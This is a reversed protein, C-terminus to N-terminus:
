TGDIMADLRSMQIRMADGTLDPRGGARGVSSAAAAVAQRAAQRPHEGCDLAVTLAASFADGAGTSDVVQTDILPLFVEDDEWVFANGAGAVDIAVLSLGHRLLERGARLADGASDVREGLALEAEKADLRFVDAASLLAGKREDDAPAGDLVVRAGEERALRAATLAAASPQQLQVLVSGATRLLSAATEVDAETLMTEAPLDELYRWRGDPELVDVILGTTARRVVGSVDIGDYRAQGLIHDAVRDDGVVGIVAVGAGLQACAVAQNAGKGGLMELRRRVAVSGGPEPVEDVCVVLDRAIQGVVVIEPSDGREM